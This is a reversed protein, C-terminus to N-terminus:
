IVKTHLKSCVFNKYAVYFILLQKFPGQPVVRFTADMLIERKERIFKMKEIMKKSYFITFTFDGNNQTYKYYKGYLNKLDLDEFKEIIDEPTKPSSPFKGIKLKNIYHSYKADDIAATPHRFSSIKVVAIFPM